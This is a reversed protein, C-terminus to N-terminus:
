KRRVVFEFSRRPGEATVAIANESERKFRLEIEVGSPTELQYSGAQPVPDEWRMEVDNIDLKWTGRPGSWTRHGSVAFGDKLGGPLARQTREGSGEASHGDSKRTWVSDHVVHRTKDETNWTVTATGSLEVRETALADFVHDVIVEDADARAISITHRGSLPTRAESTCAESRTGYDVTVSPQDADLTIAACPLNERLTSVLASGASRLGQGLTFSTSLEIHESSLAAGESAFQIEDVAEQAEERTLTPACSAATLLAPIGLM